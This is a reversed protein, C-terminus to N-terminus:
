PQATPCPPTEKALWDNEAHFTVSIESAAGDFTIKTILLKLFAAQERTTLASWLPEFEAMAAETEERGVLKQRLRGVDDDIALLRGRAERERGDIDALRARAADTGAGESTLRKTEAANWQCERQLARREVELAEIETRDQRQAHEVVLRVLQRDRGVTKIRGVVFQELQDAPISKSDCRDYGRDQAHSCVYYRYRKTNQTSFSHLMPRNCGKCWLLGKLLSGHMNNVESGGTVANFRLKAQVLDWTEKDVIAQHEGDYVDKHHAVKGIYLVNTLMTYLLGRNIPLGGIARGDKTTWKKTTWGRKELDNVVRRITECRLYTRFVERVQCAEAENVVLKSGVNDYGLVPRGGAYKGRKRAAAIKDRTRESIIEREFQAFSLLINLTLRGMSHTTNFQQTVSVFSVKHRDYVEMMKVFDTLSRSLRDVKYVVVCDVVGAAIDNMLRRLAPREMNGGTFGGDDYKTPLCVWGENKQSAIYAEGSERQADLSNFEQDLGEESSKRTYIACRIHPTTPTSSRGSM